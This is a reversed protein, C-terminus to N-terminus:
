IFKQKGCERLRIGVALANYLLRTSLAVDELRVIYADLFYRIASHGFVV